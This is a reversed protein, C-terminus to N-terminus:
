HAFETIQKHEHCVTFLWTKKVESIGMNETLPLDAGLHHVGAETGLRKWKMHGFAFVLDEDL